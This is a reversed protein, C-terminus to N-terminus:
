DKMTMQGQFFVLDLKVVQRLLVELVRLTLLVVKIYWRNVNNSSDYQWVHHHWTKDPFHEGSVNGGGCGVGTSNWHFQGNPDVIMNFQNPFGSGYRSVLVERDTGDYWCWVEITMSATNLKDSMAPNGSGATVLVRGGNSIGEMYGGFGVRYQMTGGNVTMPTNSSSSSWDTTSHMLCASLNTGNSVNADDSYGTLRGFDCDFILGSGSGQSYQNIVGKINFTGAGQSHSATTTNTVSGTSSIRMKEAPNGGAVRTHFAMYSARDGGTANDKM